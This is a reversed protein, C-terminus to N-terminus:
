HPLPSRPRPRTGPRFRPRTPATHRARTLETMTPIARVALVRGDCVCRRFSAASLPTRTDRQTRLLM